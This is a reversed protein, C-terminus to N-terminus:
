KTATPKPTTGIMTQLTVLADKSRQRQKDVIDGLDKLTQKRASAYGALTFMDAQNTLWLIMAERVGACESALDKMDEYKQRRKLWDMAGATAEEPKGLDLQAFSKTVEEIDITIGSLFKDNKCTTVATQLTTPQGSTNITPLAVSAFLVICLLLASPRLV